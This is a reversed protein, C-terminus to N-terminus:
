SKCRCQMEKIERIARDVDGSFLFRFKGADFTSCGTAEKITRIDTEVQRGRAFEKNPDKRTYTLSTPTHMYSYPVLSVMPLTQVGFVTRRFDDNM